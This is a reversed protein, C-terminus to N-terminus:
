TIIINTDVDIDNAAITAAALTNGEHSKLEAKWFKITVQKAFDSKTQPTTGDPLFGTYGHRTAIADLFRNVVPNPVTFTITAM